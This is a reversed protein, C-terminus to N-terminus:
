ARNRAMFTLRPTWDLSPPAPDPRTAPFPNNRLAALLGLTFTFWYIVRPEFGMGPAFAVMPFISFYALYLARPVGLDAHKHRAKRHWNAYYFGAFVIFFYLATALMGHAYYNAAFMSHNALGSSTAQGTRLIASGEGLFLHLPHQDLHLFPDVYSLVRAAEGYTEVPTDFIASVRNTLRDFFFLQSSVGVLVVLLAVAMIPRTLGKRIAGVPTLFAAMVMLMVGLISGRSYSMMVAMPALYVGIMSTLRWFRSLRQRTGHLYAALPWVLAIFTSSTNTAGILTKGRAATEESIKFLYKRAVSDGAPDLNKISFVTEIVLVRTMPLSTLILLVASLCMALTAAKFVAEYDERTRILISVAYFTCFALAIRFFIYVTEFLSAGHYCSLAESIMVLVLMISFVTWFPYKTNRYSQSLWLASLAMAGAVLDIIYIPAPGLRLNLKPMAFLLFAFIAVLGVAKSLRGTM